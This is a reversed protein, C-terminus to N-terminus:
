PATSVGTKIGTAVATLGWKVTLPQDLLSGQFTDGRFLQVRKPTFQAKVISVVQLRRDRVSVSNLPKRGPCFIRSETPPACLSCDQGFLRSVSEPPKWITLRSLSACIVSTDAEPFENYGQEPLHAIELDEHRHVL